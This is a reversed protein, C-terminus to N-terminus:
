GLLWTGENQETFKLKCKLKLAGMVIFTATNDEPDVSATQGSDVNDARYM